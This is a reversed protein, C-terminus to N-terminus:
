SDRRARIVPADGALLILAGTDDIDFRTISEMVRMFRDEQEMLATACAMRTMGFPAAMFLGEGTLTYSGFFRNCGTQGSIGADGDFAITLRSADIVGGGAIDEVVWDGGQLLGQPDGACGTLVSDGMEVSATMPFPMGSMSDHCLAAEVIFVTRLAREPDAATVQRAGTEAIHDAVVPLHLDAFGLRRLTLAGQSVEATWFPENGAARVDEARVAEPMALGLSLALGAAFTFFRTM